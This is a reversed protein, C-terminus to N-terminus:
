LALLIAQKLRYLEQRSRAETEENGGLLQLSFWINEMNSFNHEGNLSLKNSM